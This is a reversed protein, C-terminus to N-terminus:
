TYWIANNYAVTVVRPWSYRQIFGKSRTLERACMCQRRIGTGMEEEKFHLSCCMRMGPKALIVEVM